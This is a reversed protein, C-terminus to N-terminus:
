QRFGVRPLREKWLSGRPVHATGVGGCTYCLSLLAVQLPCFRGSLFHAASAMAYAGHLYWSLEPQSWQWALERSVCGRLCIIWTPSGASAGARSIAAMHSPLWHLGTARELCSVLDKLLGLGTGVWSQQGHLGQSTPTADLKLGARAKVPMPPTGGRECTHDVKMWSPLVALESAPTGLLSQGPLQWILPSQPLVPGTSSGSGGGVGACARGPGTCDCGWSGEMCM